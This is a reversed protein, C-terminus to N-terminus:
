DTALPLAPGPEYGAPVLHKRAAAAVDPDQRRYRFKRGVWFRKRAFLQLALNVRSWDYEILRRYHEQADDGRASIGVVELRCSGLSATGRPGVEVITKEILERPFYAYRTWGNRKEACAVAAYRGPAADLLYCIGGQVHKSDLLRGVMGPDSDEELRVFFVKTARGYEGERPFVIRVSMALAASRTTTPKPAPASACAALGALLSLSLRIRM